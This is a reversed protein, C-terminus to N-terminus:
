RRGTFIRRLRAIFRSFLRREGALDVVLREAARRPDMKRTFREKM